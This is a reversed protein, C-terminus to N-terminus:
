RITALFITGLRWGRKYLQCTTICQLNYCYMQACIPRCQLKENAGHIYEYFAQYFCFTKHGGQKLSGVIM